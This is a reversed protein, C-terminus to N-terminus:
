EKTLCGEIIQIYRKVAPGKSAKEEVYNRANRARRLCEESHDKLMLICKALGDSDGAEVCWGLDNDEIIRSFESPKDFFGLVPTRTAMITWTKSPMGAGGTGKRCSVLSVNGLSYVESVREMPQLPYLVVNALSKDQILLRLSEEESGNGFLVFKIDPYPQLREAAELVLDIGQVHGLNGAYTIYFNGRPLHLEDFLTNNERDVHNLHATDIWNHVVYLKEPPVNKNLLNERMDDSITIIADANKYTFQELIRGLKVINSHEKALGANVLSDPFIDQLNYIVKKGTLKKAIGAVAGQTPPGSGTFIFDAPVTIARYLCQCSFILYRLTREIFGKGERYLAMRHIVTNGANLQEVKKDTSYIRREEETVNRTPTPTFVDTRWGHAAFGDLLDVVMDGGSAKEPRFYQVLYILHM